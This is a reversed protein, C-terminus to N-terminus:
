EGQLLSLCYDQFTPKRGLIVGSLLGSVKICLRRFRLVALVFKVDVNWPGCADIKDSSGFAIGAKRSLDHTSLLTCCTSLVISNLYAM